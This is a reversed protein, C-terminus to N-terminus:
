MTNCAFPWHWSLLRASLTLCLSAAKSLECDKECFVSTAYHGKQVETMSEEETVAKNWSATETLIVSM